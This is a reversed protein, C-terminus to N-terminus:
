WKVFTNNPLTSNEYYFDIINVIFIYHYHHNRLWLGCKLLSTCVCVCGWTHKWVDLFMWLWGSSLGHSSIFCPSFPKAKLMAKEIMIDSAQTFVTNNLSKSTAKELYIFHTQQVLSVILYLPLHFCFSLFVLFPFSHFFCWCVDFVMWSQAKIEWLSWNLFCFLFKLVSFQPVQRILMIPLLSDVFERASCIFEITFVLTGFTVAVLVDFVFLKKFYFHSFEAPMPKQRASLVSANKAMSECLWWLLLLSHSIPAAEIEKLISQPNVIIKSAVAKKYLLKIKIKGPYQHWRVM